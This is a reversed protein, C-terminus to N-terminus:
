QGQRDRRACRYRGTTARDAGRRRRRIGVYVFRDTEGAGGLMGLAGYRADVLDVAAQVVRRLTVELDMGSSVALVGELLRKTRDEADAKM